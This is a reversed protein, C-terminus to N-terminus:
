LGYVQATGILQHRGSRNVNIPLPMPVAPNKIDDLYGYHQVLNTIVDPAIYQITQENLVKVQRIIQTPLDKAYLEYVARMPHLLDLVNQDESLKFKGYSRNWIERRIGKQIRQINKVSFYEAAVKSPCAQWEKMILKAYYDEEVAYPDSPVEMDEQNYGSNITDDSNDNYNLTQNVPSYMDM